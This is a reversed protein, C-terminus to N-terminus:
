YNNMHEKSIPNRTRIFINIFDYKEIVLDNPWTYDYRLVYYKNHETIIKESELDIAFTLIIYLILMIIFEFIYEFILMISVFKDKNEKRYILYTVIFILIGILIFSFNYFYAIYEMDFYNLVLKGSVFILIYLIIFITIKKLM